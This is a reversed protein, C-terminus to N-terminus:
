PKQRLCWLELAYGTSVVEFWRPYNVMALLIHARDFPEPLEWGEAILLIFDTMLGMQKKLDGKEKAKAQAERSAKEAAQLEDLPMHKFTLTLGADEGGAIPIMIEHQFTAAPALTFKAM